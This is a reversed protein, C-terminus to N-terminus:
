EREISFPFNLNKKARHEFDRAQLPSVPASKDAIGISALSYFKVLHRM